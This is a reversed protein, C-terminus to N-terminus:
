RDQVITLLTPYCFLSNVMTDTNWHLEVLFVSSKEASDPLGVLVALEKSDPSWTMDSVIARKGGPSEAYGDGNQDVPM